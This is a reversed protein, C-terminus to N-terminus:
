IIADVTVSHWHQYQPSAKLQDATSQWRSVNVCRKLRLKFQAQASLLEQCLVGSDASPETLLLSDDLTQSGGSNLYRWVYEYDLTPIPRSLPSFCSRSYLGQHIKFTNAHRQAHKHMKPMDKTPAYNKQVKRRQFRCCNKM